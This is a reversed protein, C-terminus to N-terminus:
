RTEGTRAYVLAKALVRVNTPDKPDALSPASTPQRAAALLNEWAPGSTPLGALREPDIWLKRAPAAEGASVAGLLCPAAAALGGLWRQLAQKMGSRRGASRPRGSDRGTTLDGTCAAADAPGACSRLSRAGDGPSRGSVARAARLRPGRPA